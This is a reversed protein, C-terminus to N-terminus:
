NKAEDYEEDFISTKGYINTMKMDWFFSQHVYLLMLMFYQLIRAHKCWRLGEKKVYYWIRTALLIKCFNQWNLNKEIVMEWIETFKNKNRGSKAVSSFYAQKELVRLKARAGRALFKKFFNSNIFSSLMQLILIVLFVKTRGSFPRDCRIERFKALMARFFWIFIRNKSTRHIGCLM